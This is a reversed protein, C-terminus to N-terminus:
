RRGGGDSAQAGEEPRSGTAPAQQPEPRRAAAPKAVQVPAGEALTARASGLVLVDGEEVGSRFGVKAAVDDRLSVEVPVREVKGGAVRMVTPPRTTDDVASAPAAPGIVSEAAVRGQAYLGSILDGNANEVDVYVRVQGTAPDVAPNV